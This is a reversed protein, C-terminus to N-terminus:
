AAWKHETMWMTPTETRMSTGLEYFGLTDSDYIGDGTSSIYGAPIGVGSLKIFYSRRFPTDFLYQGFGNTMTTKLPLDDPTGALGDTGPSYLVVEVNELGEDSGDFVGNNTKDWFVLDGVSVTPAAEPLYLGFDVSPNNYSNDDGDNIETDFILVITESMISDGMQTMMTREM